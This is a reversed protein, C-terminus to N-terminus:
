KPQTKETLAKKKARAASLINTLGYNGEHCAYELIQYKAEPRKFQFALKWPKTFVQPDSLTAEYNITNADIVTYREVVHLADSHFTGGMDLWTKDNLNTTDVVLASGEWHGISDGMYLRITPRLHQARQDLPIIRYLHNWESLIVVTGPAQIIHYGSYPVAYNSRPVGAPLCRTQPDLDGIKLDGSDDAGDTNAARLVTRRQAAWPQLPIKGDPPDVVL